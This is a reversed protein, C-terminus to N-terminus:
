FALSAGVSVVLSGVLVPGVGHSFWIRAIYAIGMCLAGDGLTFVGGYRRTLFASLPAAAGFAVSTPALLLGTTVAELGQGYGTGTPAQLLQRTVLPDAFMGFGVFATAVNVLLVAQRRAIRLDM